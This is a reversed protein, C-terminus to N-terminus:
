KVYITRYDALPEASRFPPYGLDESARDHRFYGGHYYAYRHVAMRRIGFALAALLALPALLLMAFFLVKALLFFFAVGAVISLAFGFPRM